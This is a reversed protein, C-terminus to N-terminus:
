KKQTLLAMAKNYRAHLSFDPDLAIPKEYADIAESPSDSQLLYNGKQVYFYPNHILKNAEADTEIENLFAKFATSIGDADIPEKGQPIHAHFWLGFREEVAKREYPGWNYKVALKGNEPVYKRGEEYVKVVDSHLTQSGLETQIEKIVERRKKLLYDKQFEEFPNDTRVNQIAKEKKAQKEQHSLSNWQNNPMADLWAQVLNDIHKEYINKLAEPALAGQAYTTWAKELLKSHRLRTFGNLTPLLKNEAQCFGQFLKDKFTM